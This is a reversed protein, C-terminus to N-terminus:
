PPGFNYQQLIEQGAPGAVFDIFAQAAAANASTSVVATSYRVAVNLDPPIEVLDADGSETMDTAYVIAADATGNEVLVVLDATTEAVMSASATVGAADLVRQADLGCPAEEVCLALQLDPDGLDDVGRVDAPNGVPVISTMLSTEVVVPESGELDADALRDMDAADASAFVDAPTGAVIQDALLNSADFNTHPVVDEYESEFALAIDTFADRSRSTLSSRSRM